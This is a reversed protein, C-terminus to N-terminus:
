ADQAAKRLAAVRGKEYALAETAADLIKLMGCAFEDSGCDNYDINSLVVLVDSVHALTDEPLNGVFCKPTEIETTM